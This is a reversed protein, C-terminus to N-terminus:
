SAISVNVQIHWATVNVCQSQTAIHCHSVAVGVRHSLTASNGQFAAVIHCLPATM